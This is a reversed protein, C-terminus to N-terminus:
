ERSLDFISSSPSSAPAASRDNVFRRSQSDNAPQSVVPAASATPTLFRQAEMALQSVTQRRAEALTLSTLRGAVESFAVASVADKSGPVSAQLRGSRLDWFSIAGDWTAGTIADGAVTFEIAGLPRDLAISHVVKLSALDRIELRSANNSRWHGLAIALQDGQPSVRLCAIPADLSLDVTEGTSHRVGHVRGDRGGSCWGDSWSAVSTVADAHEYLTELPKGLALDWLRVQRDWGGSIMRHPQPSYAVAAIRYEALSHSRQAVRQLLEGQEGSRLVVEYLGDPSRARAWDSRAASRKPAALSSPIDNPSTSGHQLADLAPVSTPLPTMALPGPATGVNAVHAAAFQPRMGVLLALVAVGLLTRGLNSLEYSRTGAMIQQLRTRLELPNGLGSAVPPLARNKECLFDVADLLANAYCRPTERSHHVVWSDCCEEESEGIQRIAWWVVPHWWFCGIALFELLRVWHDKRSFHALEHTILTARAAPTLEAFLSAPFLLQTRSGLGWLMPSIVGRVLVASPRSPLRLENAVNLVERSLEESPAMCENLQRSFQWVRWGQLSFVLLSGAAWCAAMVLLCDEFDPWRWAPTPVVVLASSISPARTPDACSMDNVVHSPLTSSPLPSDATAPVSTPWAPANYGIVSRATPRSGAGISIDRVTPSCQETSKATSPIWCDAVSTAAGQLGNVGAVTSEWVMGTSLAWVPPLLLKVLLLTCLAHRLAPKPFRWLILAVVPALLAAVLANGLGVELLQHM